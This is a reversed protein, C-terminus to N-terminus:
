QKCGARFCCSKEEGHEKVLHQAVDPNIDAIAVRYGAQVLSSVIIAGLGQAGGTVLATRM